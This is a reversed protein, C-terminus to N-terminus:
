KLGGALAEEAFGRLRQAHKVMDSQSLTGPPGSEGSFITLMLTASGDQSQFSVADVGLKRGSTGTGRWMCTVLDEAVEADGLIECIRESFARERYDQAEAGTSDKVELLEDRFAVVDSM